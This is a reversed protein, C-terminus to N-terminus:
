NDIKQWKKDKVEVLIPEGQRDRKELTFKLQEGSTEKPPLNINKLNSLVKERDPNVYRYLSKILAQTADYTTATRWSIPAGWQQNAQNSFERAQSTERFWPVAIVLGNITDGGQILTSNSYLSNGGLLRLPKKEDNNLRKNIEGVAKAIEVAIKTDQSSPFLIIAEANLGYLSKNVEQSADFNTATLNILPRGVVEGGLREFNNTFVERISNSDKTNPDGFIVAKKITLDRYAYEALKKGANADSYVTRFLVESDLLISTTTSSILALKAQEYEPLADQTADGSYHGIVGLISLNKVLEQAVQKAKEPKNGDNAIVIELLRGRLGEQTNFQNQAQAVGRLIEQAILIDEKTDAPVVVAFTFPSGKQRALANNYYILVEPDNQNAKVAKGFFNVAEQYNGKKFAKFGLDLDVNKSEPFLTGEGSSIRSTKNTNSICFFGLNKNQGVPCTRSFQYGVFFIMIIIFLSPFAIGNISTIRNLWNWQSPNNIQENESIQSEPIISDRTEYAEIETIRDQSSKSNPDIKLVQKYQEKAEGWRRQIILQHGYKEYTEILLSKISNDIKYAEKYLELALFLNEEKSYQEAQNLLPKFIDSEIENLFRDFKNCM